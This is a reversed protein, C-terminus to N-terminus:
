HAQHSRQALIEQRTASPQEMVQVVTVGVGLLPPEQWGPKVARVWGKRNHDKWSCINQYELGHGLLQSEAKGKSHINLEQNGIDEM